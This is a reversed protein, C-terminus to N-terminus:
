GYVEGWQCVGTVVMGYVERGSRLREVSPPPRM